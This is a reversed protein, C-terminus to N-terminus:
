FFAGDGREIVEVVADFFVFPLAVYEFALALLQAVLGPSQADVIPQYAVALPQFCQKLLLIPQLGDM